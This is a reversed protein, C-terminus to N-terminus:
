RATVVGPAVILKNNPSLPHIRTKTEKLLYYAIFSWGGMYRRYFLSDPNEKAAKQKSLDVRFVAGNYGFVM